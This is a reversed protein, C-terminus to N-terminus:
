GPSEADFHKADDLDVGVLPDNGDDREVEVVDVGSELFEISSVDRAFRRWIRVPPRHNRPGVRREIPLYKGRCSRIRTVDIMSREYRDLPCIQGCSKPCHPFECGLEADVDLCHMPQVFEPGAVGLYQVSGRWFAKVGLPPHDVNECDFAVQEAADFDEFLGVEVKGENGEPLQM